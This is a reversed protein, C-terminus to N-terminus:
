MVKRYIIKSGCLLKVRLIRYDNSIDYSLVPLYGEITNLGLVVKYYNRVAYDKQAGPVSLIRFGIPYYEHGNYNDKWYQYNSDNKISYCINSYIHGRETNLVRYFDSSDHYYANANTDQMFNKNFQLWCSDTNKVELFYDRIDVDSAFFHKSWEAYGNFFVSLHGNTYFRYVSDKTTIKLIYNMDNTISNRIEPDFDLKIGVDYLNNVSSVFSNLRSSDILFVNEIEEKIIANKIYSPRQILVISTIDSDKFTFRIPNPAFGHSKSHVEHCGITLILQVVIIFSLLSRSKHLM